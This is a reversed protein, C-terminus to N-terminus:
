PMARAPHGAVFTVNRGRVAGGCACVQAYAYTDIAAGPAPFADRMAVSGWNSNPADGFCITGKDYCTTWYGTTPCTRSKAAPSMTTSASAAPAAPETALGIGIVCRAARAGPHSLKMSHRMAACEGASMPLTTSVHDQSSPANLQLSFYRTVPNAPGPSALAQSGAAICFAVASVLAAPILMTKM